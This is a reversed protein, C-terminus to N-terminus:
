DGAAGYQDPAPAAASPRNQPRTDSSETIEGLTEFGDAVETLSSSFDDMLSEMEECSEKLETAATSIDQHSTEGHESDFTNM